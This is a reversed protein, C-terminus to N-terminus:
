YTKNSAEEKEQWSITNLLRTLAAAQSAPQPKGLTALVFKRLPLTSQQLQNSSSPTPPIAVNRRLILQIASLSHSQLESYLPAKNSM